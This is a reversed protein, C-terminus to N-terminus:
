KIVIRKINKKGAKIIAEGNSFDNITLNYNIDSVKSNGIYAGGGQILRRAEGNSSSLGSEALLSVIWVGADIREKSIEYTPLNETSNATKVDKIYSTTPIKNETDAFGFKTGAAIYANKAEEFGHALKTAEFALIEKARNIRPAQLKKFEEIEESPLSTFFYLLKCVDTDEVNRWYQYYDFIPTRNKDLWVANGLSKGFKKGSSDMLLPWTAGYIQKGKVRRALDVGTVINGWQDQGGVQLECGYKENLYVFDYAQLIMYNFELFSIGTEMRMKVSDMSLMKNVSFHPGIDRLFDLYYMKTFWDANNVFNATNFDIFRALQEKIAESNRSVTDVTLIPRAEQRGSPDGVLATAGGVLMIPRHGFQQLRRAAMVPLLHGIHLSDATPDFGVYFSTSTENLLKKVAEEDTFQYFYGRSQMDEFCKNTM